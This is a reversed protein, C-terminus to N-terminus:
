KGQKLKIVDTIGFYIFVASFSLMLIGTFPPLVSLLYIGSIATILALVSTITLLTIRIKKDLM